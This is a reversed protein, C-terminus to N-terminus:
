NEIIVVFYLQLLNQFAQIDNFVTLNFFAFIISYKLVFNHYKNLDLNYYNLM